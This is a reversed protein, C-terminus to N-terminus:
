ILFMDLFASDSKCAAVLDMFLSILLLVELAGNPM